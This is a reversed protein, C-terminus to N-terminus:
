NPVHDGSRQALYSRGFAVHFIKGFPTSWMDLPDPEDEGDAEAKEKAKREIEMAIRDTEVAVEQYIRRAEARTIEPHHVGLAVALLERQGPVTRILALQQPFGDLRPPYADMRAMARIFLTEREKDTLNAVHDGKLADLPHPTRALLWSELAKIRDDDLESFGYEKGGIALTFEPSDTTTEM